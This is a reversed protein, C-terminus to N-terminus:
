KGLSALMARSLFDALGPKVKEYTAKFRPDDVYMHALGEYIEDSVTYFHGINARHKAVARQVEHSTVKYDMLTVIEQVIIQSEDFIKKLGSKGMAKVRSLSEKYADTTGWREEAEKQYEDLQKKTLGGYLDNPNMSGGEQLSKLTKDITRILKSLREKETELHKKHEYLAGRYDFNPEDLIKKITPLPVNLEKYILIQQLRLLETQGYYRYGNEGRKPQLLGIEDYHHLTRVTVEASKALENITYKM